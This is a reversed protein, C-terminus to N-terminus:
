PKTLVASFAELTLTEGSSAKQGTIVIEWPATTDITATALATASTNWNVNTAGGQLGVQTTATRAQIGAWQHGSISAASITSGDGMVTGTLGNGVTNIRVRWTKLNGSGTLTLSYDVAIRGNSGMAGAPVTITALVEEATTATVSAPTGSQALPRVGALPLFVSSASM